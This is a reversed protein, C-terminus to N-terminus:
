SFFILLVILPWWSFIMHFKWPHQYKVMLNQLRYSLTPSCKSYVKISESNGLHFCYVKFKSPNKRFFIYEVGKTKKNEPSAQNTAQQTKSGYVLFQFIMSKVPECWALFYMLSSFWPFPLVLIAESGELDYRVLLVLTQRFMWRSLFVRGSRDFNYLLIVLNDLHLIFSCTFKIPFCLFSSLFNLSVLLKLLVSVILWLLDIM